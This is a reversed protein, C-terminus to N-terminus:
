QTSLPPHRQVSFTLCGPLTTPQSYSDSRFTYRWSDCCSIFLSKQWIGWYQSTSSGFLEPSTQYIFSYLWWQTRSCSPGCPAHSIILSKEPWHFYYLQMKCYTPSNKCCLFLYLWWQGLSIHGVSPQVHEAGKLIVHFTEYCTTAGTFRPAEM